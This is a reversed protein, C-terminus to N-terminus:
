SRCTHNEPPPLEAWLDTPNVTDGGWWCTGSSTTLYKVETERGRFLLVKRSRIYYQGSPHIFKSIVPLADSASIWEM